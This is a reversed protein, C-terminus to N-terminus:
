DTGSYDNATKESNKEARDVAGDDLDNFKSALNFVRRLEKISQRALLQVDDESFILEGDENALARCILEAYLNGADGDQTKDERDRYRKCAARFKQFAQGDIAKLWCQEGFAIIEELQPKYALLKEKLSM